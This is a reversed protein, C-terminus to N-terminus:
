KKSHTRLTPTTWALGVVALTFDLFIQSLLMRYAPNRELLERYSERTLVLSEDNEQTGHGKILVNSLAGAALVDRIKKEEV